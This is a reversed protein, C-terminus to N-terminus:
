GGAKEDLLIGWDPLLFLFIGQWLNPTRTYDQKELQARIQRILLFCAQFSKKREYL